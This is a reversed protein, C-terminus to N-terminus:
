SRGRLQAVLEPGSPFNIIRSGVDETVTMSGRPAREYPKLLHLPQWVPRTQIGAANTAELLANRHDRTRLIATVLWCNWRTGSPERLLTAHRCQEFATEYIAQIERKAELIRELKALQSAGLAANLSPMRFNYGVADHVYEYPHPVKATTALHRLEALLRVDHGVVAGGGGTTLIKNGNFSFTGLSGFTGLRRGSSSSGLAEAADELLPLKFADCVEKIEEVLCARGFVHVAVVARIPRGTQRNRLVGNRLVGIEELRRRLAIPCLGLRDEEVDVFHPTAGAHCAASATAAFTLAPVIVEDGPRVGLSTLSLQLAATGSAVAVAQPVGCLDALSAEFAEIAPGASSVWGTDVCDAVAATDEPGLCPAHLPVGGEPFLRRLRDLVDEIGNTIV